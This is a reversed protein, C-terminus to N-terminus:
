LITSSLDHAALEKLLINQFIFDLDKFFELYVINAHKAKDLWETQNSKKM